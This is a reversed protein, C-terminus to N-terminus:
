FVTAVIEVEQGQTAPDLLIVFTGDLGTSSNLITRSERIKKGDVYVNVLNASYIASFQFQGEQATSEYSTVSATSLKSNNSIQALFSRESPQNMTSVYLGNEENSSNTVAVLSGEYIDARQEAQSDEFSQLSAFSNIIVESDDFITNIFERLTGATIEGSVNDAFLNLIREKNNNNTM